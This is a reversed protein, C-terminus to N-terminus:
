LVNKSVKSLFPSLVSLLLQRLMDNSDVEYLIKDLM